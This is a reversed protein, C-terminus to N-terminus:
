KLTLHYYDAIALADAQGLRELKEQSSLFYQFDYQNDMFLHEIIIGPFGSKVSDNIITYYNSNKVGRNVFVPKADILGDTAAIENGMTEIQGLILGSLQTSVAKFNKNNTVWVETGRATGDYANNHISVLVDADDAKAVAVRDSLSLYTDDSRTLYVTVGSYNTELYTKAANAIALNFYKENQNTWASIAGPDSGGHGPDLVVVISSPTPPPTSGGQNKALVTNNAVFSTALCAVLISTLTFKKYFKM